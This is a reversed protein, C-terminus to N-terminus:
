FLYNYILFIIKNKIKNLILGISFSRLTFFHFDISSDEKKDSKIKFNIYKKIESSQTESNQTKFHTCYISQSNVVLFRTDLHGLIGLGTKQLFIGDHNFVFVHL